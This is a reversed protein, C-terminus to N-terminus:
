NHINTHIYPITNHYPLTLYPFTIYHVYTHIYVGPNRHTYRNVYTRVHMSAHYICADTRKDMWGRVGARMCVYIYIYTCICIVYTRMHVHKHLTYLYFHMRACKDVSCTPFGDVSMLKDVQMNTIGNRRASSMQWLESSHGTYSLKLQLLAAALDKLSSPRLQWMGAVKSIFTPPPERMAFFTM